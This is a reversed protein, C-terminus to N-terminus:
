GRLLPSVAWAFTPTGPNAIDFPLGGASIIPCYLASSGRRREARRPPPAPLDAVSSLHQLAPSISQRAKFLCYADKLEAMLQKGPLDKGFSCHAGSRMYLAQDEVTDNASRLCIFGGYQAETLRRVLDSGLYTQTYDLHQDLIVIDAEKVAAAFFAEVDEEREGFCRVVAPSCWSAIHFQLLQRAARSDDLVAFRLGAPFPGAVAAPALGGTAPAASYPLDLDDAVVDAEVSACFTVVDGDQRLHLSIGGVEAALACHKLGIRDSLIPLGRVAMTQSVEVKGAFLGEVFEPTLRQRQPNAVNAVTFHLMRRGEFLPDARLPATAVALRVDPNNPHGHKFANSVANELILNLLPVDTRVTLQPMDSQVDRGAILERSFDPLAVTHLAPAYEGAVLKLYVQRDKCARMGRRLCHVASELSDREVRGALYLEMTAAADSLINKLTHNLISDATQSAYLERGLLTATLFHSRSWREVVVAFVLYFATLFVCLLLHWVLFITEIGPSLAASVIMSVMAILLAPVSYPTLGTSAIHLLTPLYTSMVEAIIPMGFVFQLFEFFATDITQQGDPGVLILHHQPTPMWIKYWAVSFDTVQRPFLYGDLAVMLLCFLFHLEVIWRRGPAWCHGALLFLVACLMVASYMMIFCFSQGVIVFPLRFAITFYFHTMCSYWRWKLSKELYKEEMAANRFRYLHLLGHNDARFTLM